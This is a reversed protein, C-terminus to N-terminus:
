IRLKYLDDEDTLARGAISRPRRVSPEVREVREGGAHHVSAGEVANRRETAIRGNWKMFDIM